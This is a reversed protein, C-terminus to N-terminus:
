AICEKTQKNTKKNKNIAEREQTTLLDGKQITHFFILGKTDQHSTSMIKHNTIM